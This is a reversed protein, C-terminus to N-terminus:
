ERRRRPQNRKASYGSKRLACSLVGDGVGYDSAIDHIFEGAEHRSRAEAVQADTLKRRSYGARQTRLRERMEEAGPSDPVLPLHSWYKGRVIGQAQTRTVGYQKEFDLSTVTGTAYAARMEVVQADTLKAFNHRAGRMGRKKAAMDAMNDQHTGLFLHAPNCCPPNDCRHLVYLRGPDGHTVIWAARSAHITRRNHSIAGYAKIHPGGVWPWCAEPGGSQDVERWLRVDLPEKLKPPM